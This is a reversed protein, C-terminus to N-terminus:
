TIVESHFRILDMLRKLSNEMSITSILLPLNLENEDKAQCNFDNVENCCRYLLLSVEVLYEITM